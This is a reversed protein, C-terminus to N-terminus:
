PASRCLPFVGAHLVPIGAPLLPCPGAEFAAPGRPGPALLRQHVLETRFARLVKLLTQSKKDGSEADKKVQSPSLCGVASEGAAYLAALLLCLVTLVTSVALTGDPEPPM